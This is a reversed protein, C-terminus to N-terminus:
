EENGTKQIFEKIIKLYDNFNENNLIEIINENSFKIESSFRFFRRLDELYEDPVFGDLNKVLEVDSFKIKDHFYKQTIYGRLIDSTGVWKDFIDINKNELKEISKLSSEYLPINNKKEKQKKIFKLVLFVMLCIISILCTGALIYLLYPTAAEFEALPKIDAMNEPIKLSEVAM